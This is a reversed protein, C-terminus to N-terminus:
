KSAGTRQEFDEVSEGPQHADPNLGADTIPVADGTPTYNLPVDAGPSTPEPAHEADPEALPEPMATADPPPGSRKALEEDSIADPKKPASKATPADDPAKHAATAPNTSEPTKDPM